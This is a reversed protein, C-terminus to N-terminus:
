SRESDELFRERWLWSVAISQAAVNSQVQIADGPLLPIQHDFDLVYDASVNAPNLVRYKTQLAVAPVGATNHSMILGSSSSTAANQGQRADLRQQPSFAIVSLDAGSQQNQLTSADALAGSDYTIREFVVV